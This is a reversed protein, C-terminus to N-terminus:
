EDQLSRLQTAGDVARRFSLTWLGTKKRESKKNFTEKPFHLDLSDFIKALLRLFFFRKNPPFVTM